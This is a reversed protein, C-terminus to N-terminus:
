SQSVVMFYLYTNWAKHWWCHATISSTVITIVVVMWNGQRQSTVLYCKHKYSSKTCVLPIATTKFWPIAIKCMSLNGYGHFCVNIYILILISVYIQLQNFLNIYSGSFRINACNINTIQAQFNKNQCPFTMSFDHFKKRLNKHSGQM